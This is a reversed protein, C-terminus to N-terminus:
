VSVDVAPQANGLCCSLVGHSPLVARMEDVVAVIDESHRNEFELGILLRDCVRVANVNGVDRCAKVNPV